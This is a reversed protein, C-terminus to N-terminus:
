AKSRAAERRAADIAHLLSEIEGGLTQRAALVRGARNRLRAPGDVLKQVLDAQRKQIARELAARAGPDLKRGPDYVFRSEQAARWAVLAARAGDGLAQVKSLSPATVELATEIGYSELVAKTGRDLASLEADAIRIRRLYADLQHQRRQHELEALRRAHEQDLGELETRAHELDALCEQFVRESAKENWRRVLDRVRRALSPGGPTRCRRANAAPLLLLLVLSLGGTAVALGVAGIVLAAIAASRATRGRADRLCQREFSLIADPLAPTKGPAAIAGIEKWLTPLHVPVPRPGRAPTSLPLNFLALDTQRDIACFPCSRGKLYAHCPNTRCRQLLRELEDLAKAWAAPTPRGAKSAGQTGPPAFAQEFLRAVDRTVASLDLSAPPPALGRDAARAGYVFCGERIARELPMHTDKGAIRGYTGSFPHRAMFLLQFVLVALGFADHNVTRHLGRFTKVGQLEPPQHTLVGVDCSHTRGRHTVQFGDCDILRVLAQDSVLAVRDNVDGVVHGHEHVVAFARALNNAARILFPWGALPFAALRSRPGYLLHIDRHQDVRPMVVGIPPGGPSDRLIEVPWAAIRLLRPTRAEVMAELKKAKEPGPPEHYVKAVFDPRGVIAHIRGEGGGALEPGLEVHGSVRPAAVNKM